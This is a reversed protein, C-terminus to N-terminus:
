WKGHTRHSAPTEAKGTVLQSCSETCPSSCHACHPCITARSLTLLLSSINLDTDHGYICTWKTHAWGREGRLVSCLRMEGMRERRAALYFNKETNHRSIQHMESAKLRLSYAHPPTHAPTQLRLPAQMSWFRRSIMRMTQSSWLQTM